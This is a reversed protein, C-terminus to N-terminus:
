FFLNTHREGSNACVSVPRPAQVAIVAVGTRVMTRAAGQRGPGSPGIFVLVARTERRCSDDYWPTHLRLIRVMQVAGTRRTRTDTTTDAASNAPGDMAEACPKPTPARRAHTVASESALTSETRNM